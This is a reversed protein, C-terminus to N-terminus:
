PKAKIETFMGKTHAVVPQFVGLHYNHCTLCNDGAKASTHCEACIKRALPKFNSSFTKPNRDKYGGAFDAEGDRMHCTLCGEEGLLSFHATHSFRVSKKQGQKPRYDLWNVKFGGAQAQDVSHCKGCLGPAKPSILGEFILGSAPLKAVLEGTLNLWAFIFGDGHGTPRYRLTFEDLYWGGTANWDEGSATEITVLKAVTIRESKTDDNDDDDKGTAIEDDDDDDDKGTAIEDDDDDDDDKGTAIEDDDDDDDDKGTAIEDDDDDDDDKGTAIEDDDSDEDDAPKSDATNEAPGDAAEASPMLIKEGDRWRPIESGLAPFWLTQANAITALPLLATLSAKEVATLPRELVTALRQHLASVGKSRLDYLMSKVAWVMSEVAAFQDASAASLDLLDDIKVLIPQAARYNPDASLLLNMFPPVPDEAYEPWEGVAAGNEQLSAVDLGPVAFVAMGKASARGAGAIQEGHCAGCSTEFSKVEMFRGEPGAKHCDSCEEPALKANKEDRFHKDIHSTHDFQLPTRAESPYNTFDPHGFTLSHFQAQHCTSCRDDSITKLDATAGQHEQHCSMCPLAGDNEQPKDYVLNALQVGVSRGVATVVGVTKSLVAMEGAPLSHPLLGGKGMDHCNLCSQSDDIATKTSWAARWWGMIGHQFASHCTGCNVLEAHQFSLEGPDIVATRNSGALVFVMLAMVLAVVWRTVAGRRARWSRVPRCLPVQRCCGGNVTPGDTCPGGSLSSRTCHWRDGMRVPECEPGGQCRGNDDPGIQCPCGAAANGCVWDQVPRIYPSDRYGYAQLPDSM